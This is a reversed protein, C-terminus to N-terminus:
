SVSLASYNNDTRKNNSVNLAYAYTGLVGVPCPFGNGQWTICSSNNGISFFFSACSLCIRPLRLRWTVEDQFSALVCNGSRPRQGISPSLINSSGPCPHEARCAQCNSKDLTRANYIQHKKGM